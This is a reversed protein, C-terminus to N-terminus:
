DITNYLFERVMKQDEEWSLENENIERAWVLEDQTSDPNKLISRAKKENDRRKSRAKDFDLVKKGEKIPDDYSIGGVQRKSPTQPIFVYDVRKIGMKKAKRKKAFNIAFSEFAARPIYHQPDESLAYSLTRVMGLTGKGDTNRSGYSFPNIYSINQVDFVSNFFNKHNGYIGIEKLENTSTTTCNYGPTIKLGEVTRVKHNEKELRDRVQRLKKKDVGYAYLTYTPRYNQQGQILHGFYSVLDTNGALVEKPGVFYFNFVEGKITMDDQVEGMGITYHGAASGPADGQRGSLTVILVSEGPTVEYNKKNYVVGRFPDKGQSYKNLPMKETIFDAPSENFAGPAIFANDSSASLLNDELIANIVFTGNEFFGQTTVQKNLYHNKSHEDFSDSYIVKTRGYRVLQDDIRLNGESDKHFFGRLDSVGGYVTPVKSTVLSDGEIIGEFEFIYNPSNVMVRDLAFQFKKDMKVIKSEGNSSFYVVGDKESLTGRLKQISGFSSSAILLCCILKFINKM